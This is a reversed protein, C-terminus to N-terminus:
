DLEMAAISRDLDAFDDLVIDAGTAELASRDYSGTAVAVSRAGHTRAVEVDFPTDGIVLTAAATFRAGVRAEV